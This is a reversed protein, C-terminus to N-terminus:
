GSEKGPARKAIAEGTTKLWDGLAILDATADAFPKLEDAAIDRQALRGLLYTVANSITMEPEERDTLEEEMDSIRAQLQEIM